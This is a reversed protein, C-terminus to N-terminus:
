IFFPSFGRAETSKETFIMDFFIKSSWNALLLTTYHDKRLRKEGKMHKLENPLDYQLVGTSTSKVQILAVQGKTESIWRDQEEIFDGVSLIQDKNSEFKFPLVFSLYKKVVNQNPGCESAFWIKEAQIQNQLHENMRRISGNSSNFKQAYVFKRSELNYQKKAEKLASKYEVLDDTDFDAKIFDLSINREKSISSENFGKIFEDGSADICVFIIKFHTLLYILYEFHHKISGGSKGYTHVLTIKINEKDILYVGMAFYDSDKNSAYSPDISLIYESNKDGFLQTTPYTGLPLTCEHLKKVNFYSDSSDLFEAKNERRFWDSHEGGSAAAARIAPLDILNTDEPIAEYSCRLCFYSPAEDGGRPNQIYDLTENYLTYLYQFTYSASSFVFYKNKPFSVRDKETIIGEQIMEDERRRIDIEEQMNLRANLFPRIIVDQMEKTLNLGEDYCVLSARTGRLGETMPLSFVETNAPEPIRIRYMDPARQIVSRSNVTKDFCNRILKAKKSTIIKETEELIRRSTRFNNSVLCMKSNFYILPYLVALVSIIFSKGLGRGAVIVGNDKIFIGRIIIEQLPLLDVGTLYHLTFGINHKFFKALTIRADVDDMEGQIKRIEETYDKTTLIKQNGNYWAM